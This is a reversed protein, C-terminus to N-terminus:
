LVLRLSCYDEGIPCKVSFGTKQALNRMGQNEVLCEGVLTQTGRRRQYDIIRQMLLSGLGKGQWSRHLQIAFEAERGHPDSVARVEGMLAPPEGPAPSGIAVFTMDRDYDIQSYRALESHPVERRSMFFRLRMDHPDAGAYFDRMLPEDEPRIPRLELEQGNLVIREQLETPYPRIALRDVASRTAPAVRISADLAIVGEADALLPNVDIECVEAIDCVIQSVKLISGYLAERHVAARDRYGALLRSVRTRSVLDDVLAMNLPPLALARDRVLEAATGGQGFLITPGFVPDLSAGVILEHAFPRRVMSQVTFGTVRADPRLDHVRRLIAEAAGRVSASTKLDLAVGGVDSKHTIDPSLIKLVVPYGIEGAAAVAQDVTTAIRTEAVAIGYARLVQKAEHESLWHRGADLAQRISQRAAEV